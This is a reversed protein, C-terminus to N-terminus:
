LGIDDRGYFNCFHFVRTQFYESDSGEEAAPTRRTLNENRTSRQPVAVVATPDYREHVKEWNSAASRLAPMYWSEELNSHRSSDEHWVSPFVVRNYLVFRPLCAIAALYEM